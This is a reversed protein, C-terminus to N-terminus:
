LVKLMTITNDYSQDCPIFGNKLWFSYSNNKYCKIVVRVCVAGFSIFNNEIHKYIINGLGSFKPLNEIMLLSIHAEFGIKYECIGIEEGTVDTILYTTFGNEKTNNFHEIIFSEDVSDIGFNNLLFLKNSNYIKILNKIEIDSIDYLIFNEM